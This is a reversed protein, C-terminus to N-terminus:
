AIRISLLGQKNADRDYGLGNIIVDCTTADEPCTLVDFGWRTRARNHDLLDRCDQHIVERDLDAQTVVFLDIDRPQSKTTAFSGWVILRVFGCRRVVEYIERLTACLAHRREGNSFRQEIEDLTCEHIGPPLNPNNDAFPPIM